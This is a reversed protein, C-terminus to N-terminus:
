HSMLTPVKVTGLMDRSVGGFVLERFRSHGYCGMVLLDAGDEDLRSMLSDSASAHGTEVAKVKPRLGHRALSAALKNAHGKAERCAGANGALTLITIAEADKILDLSDFVARASQPSNNWAILV